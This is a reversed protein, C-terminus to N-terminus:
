GWLVPPHGVLPPPSYMGEGVFSGVLAGWSGGVQEGTGLLINARARLGLLLLGRLFAEMMVSLILWESSVWVYMGIFSDNIAESLYSFIYGHFTFSYLFIYEFFLCLSKFVLFIITFM